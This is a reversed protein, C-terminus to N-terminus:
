KQNGLLCKLPIKTKWGTDCKQTFPRQSLQPTPTKGMPAHHNFNPFPKSNNPFLITFYGLLTFLDMGKNLKTIEQCEDAQKM